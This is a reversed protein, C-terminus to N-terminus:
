KVLPRTRPLTFPQNKLKKQLYKGRGENYKSKFFYIITILESFLRDTYPLIVPIKFFTKEHGLNTPKPRVQLSIAGSYYRSHEKGSNSRCHGDDIGHQGLPKNIIYDNRPIRFRKNGEQYRHKGDLNRAKRQPIEHM